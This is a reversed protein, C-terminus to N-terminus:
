IKLYHKMKGLIKPIDECLNKDLFIFKIVVEKGEDKMKGNYIVKYKKDIIKNKVYIKRKNLDEILTLFDM